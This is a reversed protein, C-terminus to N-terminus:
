EKIALNPYLQSKRLVTLCQSLCSNFDGKYNDYGQHDGEKSAVQALVHYVYLERFAEPVALNEDVAIDELKHEVTQELYQIVAEQGMDPSFYITAGDCYWGDLGDNLSKKRLLRKGDAYVAHIDDVAIDAPLPYGLAGDSIDLVKDVYLPNVAAMLQSDLANIYTLMEGIEINDNDRLLNIEELIDEITKM